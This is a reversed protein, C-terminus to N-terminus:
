IAVGVPHEELDEDQSEECSRFVDSGAIDTDERVHGSSATSSARNGYVAGGLDYGQFLEAKTGTSGGINVFPWALEYSTRNYSQHQHPSPTSRFPGIPSSVARQLKLPRHDSLDGFFTKGKRQGRGGVPLDKLNKVLHSSNPFAVSPFLNYRGSPTRSVSPRLDGYETEMNCASATSPLAPRKLASKPHPEPSTSYSLLMPRTPPLQKVGKFRSDQEIALAPLTPSTLSTPSVMTEDAKIEGGLRLQSGSPSIRIATVKGSSSGNSITTDKSAKHVGVPFFKARVGINSITPVAGQSIHRRTRGLPRSSPTSPTTGSGRPKHFLSLEKKSAITPTKSLRKSRSTLEAAASPNNLTEELREGDEGRFSPQKSEHLDDCLRKALDLYNINRDSVDESYRRLSPRAMHVLYGGHTWTQPPIIIPEKHEIIDPHHLNLPLSNRRVCDAISTAQSREPNRSISTLLARRSDESPESSEYKSRCLLLCIIRHFPM